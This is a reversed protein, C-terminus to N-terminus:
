IHLRQQQSYEYFSVAALAAVDKKKDMTDMVVINHYRKNFSESIAAWQALVEDSDLTQHERQEREALRKAIEEKNNCTLIMVTARAALLMRQILITDNVLTQENIPFKRDAMRYVYETLHFRDILYLKRFGEETRGLNALHTLQLLMDHTPDDGREMKLVEVERGRAKLLSAIIKITESKGSAKPGDIVIIM